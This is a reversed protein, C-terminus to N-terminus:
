SKYPWGSNNRFINKIAELLVMKKEQEKLGTLTRFLSLMFHVEASTM